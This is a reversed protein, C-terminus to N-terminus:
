DEGIYAPDGARGQYLCTGADAREPGRSAGAVDGDALSKVGHIVHAHYQPAPMPHRQLPALVTDRDRLLRALGRKAINTAACYDDDARYTCDPCVLRHVDRRRVADTSGCKPCTLGTGAPPVVMIPVGDWAAKEIILDKLLSYPWSRLESSVAKSLQINDAEGNKRTIDKFVLDELVILPVENKARDVVGKALDILEWVAKHAMDKVFNGENRRSNSWEKRRGQTDLREQVKHFRRIGERWRGGKVFLVGRGGKGLAVAVLLKYIGLDVGIPIFVADRGFSLPFNRVDEIIPRGYHIDMSLGSPRWVLEGMCRVLGGERKIIDMLIPVQHAEGMIGLSINGKPTPFTVHLGHNISGPYNNEPVGDSGDTTLFYDKRPIRVTAPWMNRGQRQAKETRSGPLGVDSDSSYGGKKEFSRWMEIAKDLAAGRMDPTLNPAAAKAALLDEKRFAERYPARVPMLHTFIGLATEFQEFLADIALKNCSVDDNDLQCVLTKYIYNQGALPYTKKDQM